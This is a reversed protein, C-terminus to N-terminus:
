IIINDILRVQGFRCAIAILTGSKIKKVPKLSKTNVIEVYELRATKKNNIMKFIINKIRNADRIGKKFLNGAKKLSAYLVRAERREKPSLYKNRSSLALGGKERVTPLVKIKVSFNLDRTMRKIIIAQQADKQGFYAVDPYVINFLKSILTVVGKFHGSRSLGCLCDSLDEVYVFTRCDKFYVDEKRPYFICDVKERSALNRDRKFDRPYKDFDETPGFQTPNVFISVVLFDNEARAERILSLHGPHLYGMTPVFGIKKNQKKLQRSLRQM